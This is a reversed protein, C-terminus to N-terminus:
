DCGGPIYVVLAQITAGAPVRAAYLEKTGQRHWIHLDGLRYGTETLEKTPPVTRDLAVWNGALAGSALTIYGPLDYTAAAAPRGCHATTGVTIGDGATRVGQNVPPQGTPAGCGLLLLGLALGLAVVCTRKM